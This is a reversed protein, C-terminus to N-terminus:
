RYIYVDLVYTYLEFTDVLLWLLLLLVSYNWSLSYVLKKFSYMYSEWFKVQHVM